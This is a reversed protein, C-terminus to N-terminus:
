FKYTGTVQLLRGPGPIYHADYLSDGYLKNEINTLNAKVIFKDRQVQYEAMLDGTIFKPVAFAPNRIPKQASRANLGAGFRWQPTAQWTAWLSGTHAPTLSPRTGRGESGAVGVDIMAVPMWMYSGFIELGPLPRGAIDLEIGAVHRKGSLTILTTVLPDQNREHLKTARFIAIRTTFNGDASDLKAGAEVNISQEPPVGANGANLSYADGSTNFSTAASVHFSMREDPQFLLGARYSPESVKMKWAQAPNITTGPDAAGTPPTFIGYDGELRDYRLGLVLKWKPVIEVVDQVYLGFAESEYENNPRLTRLGEDIRAGDYPTGVRTTPKAPVVGGQAANRAAWVIKREKAFDIGAALEHRLGLVNFKGTFDSQAFTTEMDQIKLQTGRTLVTNPGFTQLSAAIGGLQLAAAAFRVTGARQDREYRGHRVRTNLEMQPAIRFVHQLTALEARGYNVDSAMGYYSDPDIPLLGAESAPSTPTPRIYPMGYNMGNKNELFYGGVAVEHREGIGWRLTGAVGYKDLASGAGNSDAKTYMGGLRVATSDGVKFNFDGVARRYAHSGLTVDIQHEDLLRPLKTVMNVAGGTSGRGFLMSASGRLVEIRDVFFTDRDYFAPDRMGDQFVDGNQQVSFGRLRIDEEGGEAALFSIGSTQKLVEKMTDLNRDDILRETVVTVSQPIDRLEQEGKGIRTSTAQVADKGAPERAVKARIVPLTPESAAPAPAAAQAFAAGTLGLSAAVAVLPPLRRPIRTSAARAAKNNKSM